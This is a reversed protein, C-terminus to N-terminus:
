RFTALDFPTVFSFIECRGTAWICHTCELVTQREMGDESIEINVNTQEVKKVSANHIVDIRYTQMVRNLADRCPKSEAPMLENGSDVLTISLKRLLDNWRARLGM